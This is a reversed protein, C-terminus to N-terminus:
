RKENNKLLLKLYEEIKRSLEERSYYDLLCTGGLINLYKIVENFVDRDVKIDNKQFNNVTILLAKRIKENSSFNSSFLYLSKTAFDSRFYDMLEFPNEFSDDYTYKGIWWLRSISNNILSRKKGHAFFYRAYINEKSIKKQRSWRYQMYEYFIGHTLGVWLREDSAQLVNLNMLSKYLIISNDADTEEPKDPNMKLEFYPVEKKFEIFPSTNGFCEYVWQDDPLSYNDINEDFAEILTKLSDRSLFYLKM